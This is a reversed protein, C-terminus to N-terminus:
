DQPTSDVVSNHEKSPASPPLPVGKPFFNFLQHDEYGFGRVRPELIMTAGPRTAGCGGVFLLILLLLHHIPVSSVSAM